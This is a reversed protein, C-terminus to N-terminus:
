RFDKLHKATVQQGIRKARRKVDATARRMAHYGRFRAVRNRRSTGELWAGYPLTGFDGVVDQRATHRVRMTRGYAGTWKRVSHRLLTRWTELHEESIAEDIKRLLVATPHATKGEVVPGRYTYSVRTKITM